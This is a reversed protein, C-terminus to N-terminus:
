PESVPKRPKLAQVGLRLEIGKWEADKLVPTQTDKYDALSEEQVKSKTYNFVDSLSQYKTLGDMLHKTFIGNKYRASDHATQNEGASAIVVDGTGQLFDKISYRNGGLDKAGEEKAAGSHCTDLIFVVRQAKLRPAITRALENMDIGTAFPNLPDTDYAMLFNRHAVDLAPATGHTAFYICVLDDPKANFPLWYSGIDTMIRERTAQGNTLTRVHDPAFNCKDVLFKSFDKADKDPFSLNWRPNKFNSIGVVVAWKDAVPSSGSLSAVQARASHPNTVEADRGATAVTLDPAFSDGQHRLMLDVVLPKDPKTSVMTSAAATEFDSETVPKAATEVDPEIQAFDIMFHQPMASKKPTIVVSRAAQYTKTEIPTSSLVLKLAEVGPVEDFDLTGKEPITITTGKTVANKEDGPRPFMLTADGGNESGLVIYMYGNVNSRVHFRIKDGSRFPYRSDVKYLRGDRRLEISYSLGLNTPAGEANLQSVFLEKAGTGSHPVVAMCADPVMMALSLSLALAAMSIGLLQMKQVKM